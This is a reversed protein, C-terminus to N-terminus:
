SSEAFRRRDDGFRRDISFLGVYEGYVPSITYSRLAFFLKIVIGYLDAIEPM